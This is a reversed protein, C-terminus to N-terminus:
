PGGATVLFHKVFANFLAYRYHNAWETVHQAHAASQAPNALFTLAFVACWVTCLGGPPVPHGWVGPTWLPLTCRLASRVAAAVGQIAPEGDPELLVIAGGHPWAVLMNAHGNKFRLTGTGGHIEVEPVYRLVIRAVTSPARTHQLWSVTAANVHWMHTALAESMRISPPGGIGRGILEAKVARQVRDAEVSTVPVHVRGDRDVIVFLETALSGEGHPSVHRSIAVWDGHSRRLREGIAHVVGTPPPLGDFRESDSGSGPVLFPWVHDGSEM